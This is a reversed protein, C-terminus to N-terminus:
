AAAATAAAIAEAAAKAKAEAAANDAAAEAAAAEASAKIEHAIDIGITFKVGEAKSISPNGLFEVGCNYNVRSVNGAIDWNRAMVSDLGSQLSSTVTKDLTEEISKRLITEVFDIATSVLAEGPAFSFHIDCDFDRLAIKTDFVNTKIKKDQVDVYFDIKASVDILASVITPRVKGALIKINLGVKFAVDDIHVSLHGDETDMILDKIDFNTVKIDTAKVMPTKHDEIKM